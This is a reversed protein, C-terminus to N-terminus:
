SMVDSNLIKKGIKIAVYLAVITYQLQLVNLMRLLNCCQLQLM